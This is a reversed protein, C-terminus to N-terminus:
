RVPLLLDLVDMCQWLSGVEVSAADSPMQLSGLCGRDKRGCAM